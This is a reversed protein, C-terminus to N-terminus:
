VSGSGGYGLLREKGRGRTPPPSSPLNVCKLVRILTPKSFDVAVSVM